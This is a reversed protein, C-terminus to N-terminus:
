IHILSLNKDVAMIDRYRTVSWFPGYASQKCYHVPKMQRMQEFIPLIQENRFLRPDAPNVDALLDEAQRAASM